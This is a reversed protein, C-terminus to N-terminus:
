LRQRCRTIILSTNISMSGTFNYKSFVLWFNRSEFTVISLTDLQESVILSPRSIVWKSGVLIMKRKM